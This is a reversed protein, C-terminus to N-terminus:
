ATLPKAGALGSPNEKAPKAGTPTGFSRWYRLPTLAIGILALQSVDFAMLWKFAQDMFGYSHLGVGLMNVGFWSFATVINGFICLAMLGRERVLGGWRAHLILACWIVIILAGNEKPDWGWFRGWSQDAWIGGLITGVFSFLTAFCVIGYVMRSLAKATGPLLTTTFFGRVIYLMALFGAVFMSAYGLTIVVVHTALWINTDLVAQLMEMTDGSLSLNHAIILTVVGVSAATVGGIGDRWIRELIIGLIGAGWGVFIASSYLNTVPPRGALYMRFILGSTHLVIGLVLLYFATRRTWPSWNIWFACGFLFALLYISISKIFPEFANFFNEQASKRLEPAFSGALWNRYETVAANFDLANENGYADAMKAYAWVAPSIQGTRLSEMLSAGINLWHDRKAPDGPPIILPYAAQSLVQYRHFFRAVAQVDGNGEDLQQDGHAQMKQLAALGPALSRQFVQLEEVFSSVNQPRLSNQLRFYLGLQSNLKLIGRQFATLQKEDLENREQKELLPDAQKKVEEWGGEKLEGFSFYKRNEPLKLLSLVELNDIRFIYRKEAQDPRTMVELLWEVASMQKAKALEFFGLEEQPRDAVVVRSKGRLTLLSNRAVSDFPQVRGGLLVSIKAFEDVHFPTKSKEVRLGGIVWLAMVITVAWPLWRRWGKDAPKAGSDIQDKTKKM